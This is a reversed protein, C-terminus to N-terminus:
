QPLTVLDQDEAFNLLLGIVVTALGVGSIILGANQQFQASNKWAVRDTNDATQSYVVSNSNQYYGYGALTAGLVSLGSGMWLLSNGYSGASRPSVPSLETTLGKQIVVGKDDFPKFGRRYVEVEHVGVDVSITGTNEQDLRHGDIVVVTRSDVDNLVLAGQELFPQADLLTKPGTVNLEVRGDRFTDNGKWTVIWTGAPLLLEDDALFTFTRDGQVAQLVPRLGEGKFEVPFGVEEPIEVSREEDKGLTIRQSLFLKGPARAGFTHPGVAIKQSLPSTGSENGDVLIEADAGTTIQVQATFPLWPIQVDTSGQLSKLVRFQGESFGTAGEIRLTFATVPPNWFLPTRGILVGNALVRAGKEQNFILDTSVEYEGLANQHLAGSVTAVPTAIRPVSQLISAYGSESLFRRVTSVPIAFYTNNANYKLAANVGVVLGQGNLLPGGSNGPNITATHQIWNEERFASVSGKTFTSSLASIKKVVDSGFPYGLSFVDAGVVLSDDAALGLALSGKLPIEVLALDQNENAAIVKAEYFDKNGVLVQLVLPGNTIAKFLAVKLARREKLSMQKDTFTEDIYRAWGQGSNERSKKEEKTDIVHNNTVLHGVDDLFFGTGSNLEIMGGLIKRDLKTEMQNLSRTDRFYDPLIKVAQRIYVVGPSAAQYLDGGTQAPASVAGLVFFGLFFLARNQM